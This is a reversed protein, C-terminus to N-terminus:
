ALTNEKIPYDDVKTKGRSNASEIQTLHHDCIIHNQKLFKIEEKLHEIEGKLDDFSSDRAVMTQKSSLRNHVESLSYPASYVFDNKVRKDDTISHSSSSTKSAALQIIKERLINDTVEKLLEIVNNATITFMNMDEFQSQLTYFEGHECNCIDCHCKCADNSDKQDKNSSKPQDDEIAYSAESDEYDSKSGSTYLFSYIKEQIDEDLELPKLKELKGNPAIQGFKGCKYCKIKDLDRKSRNKTFRHSKRHAKREEREERTRRRSRRRRRHSSHPKSKSTEHKTGKSADPLGFQTCIDGLKSKERLKDMKLQRSLKLENCLNLGEQTCAGILKGYTYNNYPIIGQSDRLTKKVREPFLPPLGDIFKAKWFELGNEPLEM